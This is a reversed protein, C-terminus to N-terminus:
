FNYKFYSYSDLTRTAIYKNNSNIHIKLKVCNLSMTHAVNEGKM